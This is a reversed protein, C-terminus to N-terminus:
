GLFPSRVGAQKAAELGPRYDGLDDTNTGNLVFELQWERRKREAIEYLESKCHFCRDPAHQAYGDRLLEASEVLRHEAGLESAIRAADQRESEPLSPSVATMGIARPGLARTAAALVVASDIGGSYCVLVSGLERLLSLLHELQPPPQLSAMLEPMVHEAPTTGLGWLTDSTPTFRRPWFVLRFRPRKGASWALRAAFWGIKSQSSERSFRAPARSM